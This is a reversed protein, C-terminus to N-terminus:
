TPRRLTWGPSRSRINDDHGSQLERALETAFRHAQEENLFWASSIRSKLLLRKRYLRVLWPAGVQDIQKVEITYGNGPKIVM